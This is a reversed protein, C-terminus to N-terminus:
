QYRNRDYDDYFNQRRQAEYQEKRKAEIREQRKAMDADRIEFMNRALRVFFYLGLVFIPLCMLIYFVIKLINYAM